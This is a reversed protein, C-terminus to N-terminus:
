PYFWMVSHPPFSHLIYIYLLSPSLSISCFHCATCFSSMPVPPHRLCQSAHSCHFQVCLPYLMLLLIGVVLHIWWSFSPVIPSHHYTHYLTDIPVSWVYFYNIFTHYAGGLLIMLSFLIYIIFVENHILIYQIHPFHLLLPIPTFRKYVAHFVATVVTHFATM